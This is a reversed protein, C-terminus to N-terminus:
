APDKELRQWFPELERVLFAVVEEKPYPLDGAVADLYLTRGAYLMAIEATELVPIELFSHSAARLEDAIEWREAPIPTQECTRPLIAKAKAKAPEGDASATNMPVCLYRAERLIARWRKWNDGPEFGFYIQRDGSTWVLPLYGKATKTNLALTWGPRRVAVEEILWRLADANYLLRKPQDRMDAAYREHLEKLTPIETQKPAPAPAPADDPLWLAAQSWRTSALQLFQRIGLRNRETPFRAQLWDGGLFAEVATAPIHRQWCRLRVLEEAGARNLGELPL